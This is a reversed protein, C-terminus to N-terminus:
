ARGMIKLATTTSIHAERESKSSLFFEVEKFDWNL